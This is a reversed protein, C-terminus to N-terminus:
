SRPFFVSRVSKVTPSLTDDKIITRVADVIENVEEKSDALVVAPSESLKFVGRTKEAIIKRDKTVVRLETFDYEFSVQTFSYIAFLTILGSIM